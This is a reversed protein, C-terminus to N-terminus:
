RWKEKKSTSREDIDNTHASQRGTSPRKWRPKSNLQVPTFDHVGFNMRTRASHWQCTFALIWGRAHPIGNVHSRWFEDEHPLSIAPCRSRWNVHPGFIRGRTGALRWDTIAMKEDKFVVQPYRWIPGITHRCGTTSLRFFFWYREDASNDVPNRIETCSDKALNDM